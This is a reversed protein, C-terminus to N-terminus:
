PTLTFQREGAAHRTIQGNSYITVKGPGYVTWQGDPGDDIMATQEDIGVLTAWPLDKQLQQAWQRGFTNHHPLICCGDLIGLGEIIKNEYPDFLVDCFVMAGASSGALVGDQGLGDRIAQWCRSARLVQALYAPFGGLLYILGAKGLQRAIEADNASNDDIVMALSVNRAGLGRFWNCGNNGARTHNDDPAAATPIISVPVHVGGALEMARLDSIKMEGSFEAGGQLVLYGM